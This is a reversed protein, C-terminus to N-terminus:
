DVPVLSRLMSVLNDVLGDATNVPLQLQGVEEKYVAKPSLRKLRIQQSTLLSLPAFRALFAPGGFSPGKTVAIERLGLRACEARLRAVGLLAEATDPLPGYRDQWEVRIDDV